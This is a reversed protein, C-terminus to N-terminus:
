GIPIMKRKMSWVMLLPINGKPMHNTPIVKWHGRKIHYHLEKEKYGYYKGLTVTIPWATIFESNFYINYEM